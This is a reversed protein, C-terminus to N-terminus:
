QPDREAIETISNAGVFNKLDFVRIPTTGDDDYVTLTKATQDIKTRNMEYKMLTTILDNMADLKANAVGIQTFNLDGTAKILSILEGFSGSAIHASALKDWVEDAISSATPGSSGSTSVTDILNSTSLNVSVNYNGLTPITAPDGTRTFLNGSITLDHTGEYPRIKWDNELFFTSGLFRTPSIPDGGIASLAILYKANDGVLVWEKWDSYLDVKVDLETVGNDVIILKQVGDFTVKSV